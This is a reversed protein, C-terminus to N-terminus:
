FLRFFWNDRKNDECKTLLEKISWINEFTTNGNFIDETLPQLLKQGILINRLTSLNVEPLNDPKTSLINRHTDYYDSNNYQWHKLRCLPYEHTKIIKSPYSFINQIKDLPNTLHFSKQLSQDTSQSTHSAFTNVGIRQSSM